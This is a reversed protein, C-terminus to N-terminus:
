QELPCSVGRGRGRRSSCRLLLREDGGERGGKVWKTRKTTTARRASVGRCFFGGATSPYVFLSLSLLLSLMLLLLSLMLLLLMLLMLLLLMLLLMLM